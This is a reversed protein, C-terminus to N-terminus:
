IVGYGKVELSSESLEIYCGQIYESFLDGQKYDLLIVADDKLTVINDVYKGEYMDYRDLIVLIVHDHRAIDLFSNFYRATEATIAIIDKGSRLKSLMKYLFTKGSASENGFTYIGNDLDILIKRDSLLEIM